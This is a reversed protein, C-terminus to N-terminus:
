EPHHISTGENLKKAINIWMYYRNNTIDQDVTNKEM